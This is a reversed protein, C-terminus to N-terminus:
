RKIYVNQIELYNPYDSIPIPTSSELRVIFTNLDRLNIGKLDIDTVLLCTRGAFDNTRLKFIAATDKYYTLSGRYLWPSNPSVELSIGKEDSTVLPNVNRLYWDGSASKRVSLQSTASYLGIDITKTNAPDKLWLEFELTFSNSNDDTIPAKYDILTLEQGIVSKKIRYEIKRRTNNNIAESAILYEDSAFTMVVSLEDMKTQIKLEQSIAATIPIAQGWTFGDESRKLEFQKKALEVGSVAAAYAKTSDATNLTFRNEKISATVIIATIIMFISLLIVATLLAVGRKAKSHRM